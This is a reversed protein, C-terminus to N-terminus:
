TITDIGLFYKIMEVMGGFSIYYVCVWVCMYVCACGCGCACVHM